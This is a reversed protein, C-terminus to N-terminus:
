RAAIQQAIAAVNRDLRAVARALRVGVPTLSTGRSNAVLLEANLEAELRRVARAVTPHSIGLQAGAKNFSKSLAVQLFIRLEGWYTGTLPQTPVSM